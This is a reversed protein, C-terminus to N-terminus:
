SVQFAALKGPFAAQLSDIWNTATDGSEMQVNVYLPHLGAGKNCDTRGRSMFSTM